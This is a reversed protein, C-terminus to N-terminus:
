LHNIRGSWAMSSSTHQRHPQVTSSRKFLVLPGSCASVARRIRTFGQLTRPRNEERNHQNIFFSVKPAPSVSIQHSKARTCLRHHHFFLSPKTLHSTEFEVNSGRVVVPGEGTEGLAMHTKHRVSTRDWTNVPTWSFRPVSDKDLRDGAKAEWSKLM